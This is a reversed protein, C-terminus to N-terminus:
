QNTAALLAIFDSPSYVPLSSNQYDKLDRTIIADLGQSQASAIQVADEYDTVPLSEANALVSYDVGAIGVSALLLRVNARATNIDDAKKSIYYITPLTVACVFVEVQRNANAEWIAAADNVFPQRNLFLDLIVNTDLLVKM